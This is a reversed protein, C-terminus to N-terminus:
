STRPPGRFDWSTRPLGLIFVLIFVLILEPHWCPHASMRTTRNIRTMRICLSSAECRSDQKSKQQSTDQNPKIQSRAKM